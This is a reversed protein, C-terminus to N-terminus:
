SANSCRWRGQTVANSPASCTVAADPATSRKWEVAAHAAGAAAILENVRDRVALELDVYHNAIQWSM